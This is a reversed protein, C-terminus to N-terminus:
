AARAERGNFILAEMAPMSIPKSYLFGQASHCGLEELRAVQETTEVGEAVVRFGMARCLTIIAMIIATPAQEVGLMTVFSRDIKVTDIPLRQLYSLSSYGTGFDDIALGVGLSKLANL